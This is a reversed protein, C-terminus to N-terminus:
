TQIGYKVKLFVAYRKYLHQETDYRVQESIEGFMKPTIALENGTGNIFNRLQQKIQTFQSAATSARPAAAGARGLTAAGATLAANLNEAMWTAEEDTEDSPEFDGGRNLSITEHNARYHDRIEAFQQLLVEIAHPEGRNIDSIIDQIRTYLIPLPPRIGTIMM